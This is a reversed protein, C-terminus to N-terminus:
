QTIAHTPCGNVAKTISTQSIIEQSIVEAKHTTSNLAFNSSALRACKGCGICKQVDVALSDNKIIETADNSPTTVSQSVGEDIVTSSCGSLLQIIAYGGLAM